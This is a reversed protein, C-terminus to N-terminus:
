KGVGLCEIGDNKFISVASFNQPSSWVPDELPPDLGENSGKAIAVVAVDTLM